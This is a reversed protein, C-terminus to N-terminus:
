SAGGITPIFQSVRFILAIDILIAFPVSIWLPLAGILALIHEFASFASTFINGLFTLIELLCNWIFSLFDFIYM